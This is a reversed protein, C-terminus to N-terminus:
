VVSKRDGGLRDIARCGAPTDAQESRVTIDIQLSAGGDQDAAGLARRAFKLQDGAIAAHEEAARDVRLRGVAAARQRDVGLAAVILDSSCVDSSWDSIRM